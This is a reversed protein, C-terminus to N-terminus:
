YKFLWMSWDFLHGVTNNRYYVLLQVGVYFDKEIKSLNSKNYITHSKLDFEKSLVLNLWGNEYSM